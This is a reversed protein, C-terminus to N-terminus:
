SKKIIKRISVMFLEIKKVVAIFLL